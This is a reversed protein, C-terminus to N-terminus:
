IQCGWIHVISGLEGQFFPMFSRHEQMKYMRPLLFTLTFLALADCPSFFDLVIISIRLNADLRAVLMDAVSRDSGAESRYHSSQADRM